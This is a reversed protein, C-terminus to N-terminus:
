RALRNLWDRLLATETARLPLAGHDGALAAELALARSALGPAAPPPPETTLSDVVADRMRASIQPDRDGPPGWIGPGTLRMAGFGLRHVTRGGVFAFTSSDAIPPM